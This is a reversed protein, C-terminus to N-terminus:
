EIKGLKCKDTGKLLDGYKRKIKNKYRDKWYGEPMEKICNQITLVLRAAERRSGIALHQAIREKMKDFVLAFDNNMEEDRMIELIADVQGSITVMPEISSLWSVHRHLAHRLLDGKTRYPFKKTQIIQETQRAMAPICRFWHRASHGKPDSAPIIFEAPEPKNEPM